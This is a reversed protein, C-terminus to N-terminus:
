QQPYMFNKIPLVLPPRDKAVGEEEPEEHPQRGNNSWHNRAPLGNNDNLSVM